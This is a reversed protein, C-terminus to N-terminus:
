WGAMRHNGQRSLIRLGAGKSLLGGLLDPDQIHVKTSSISNWTPWRPRSLAPSKRRGNEGPFSKPIYVPFGNKSELTELRVEM